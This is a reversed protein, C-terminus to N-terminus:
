CWGGMPLATLPRRNSLPTAVKGFRNQRKPEVAQNEATRVQGTAYASVIADGPRNPLGERGTIVFSGGDNARAICSGSLLQSTDVIVEPLNSVSNEIFSTDPSSIVGSALQGDANVDVRGDGDFPPQNDPPLTESFFSTLTINGGRASQSRAVIDSDDFAIVAAGGITINGGDGFSETTIDSDGFLDVLGRETGEAQNIAINGGSSQSALTVIDSNTLQVRDAANLIVPGAIGMGESQSSIQAGNDLTLTPSNVIIRGGAGTSGERTNAFLGSAPSENSFDARSLGEISLSQQLRTSFTPDSGTFGVRGAANLVINGANGSSTTNTVIQGGSLFNALETTIAIDGGSFSNFTQANIVAGNAVNLENAVINVNGSSGQANERTRAFIGSPLGIERNSGDLTTNMSNININGANGMGNTTASIFAGDLISLNDSTIKLDGGNGLATTTVATSLASPFGNGDTGIIQVESANITLSGANGNGSTNTRIAAGNNVTVQRAQIQINGGEGSGNQSVTTLIESPFGDEDLGSVLIEDSDIFLNGASGSGFIDAAILGGDKIVLSNAHIAQDGGNGSAGLEVRSIFGSSFNPSSGLIQIENVEIIQQGANGQGYTSSIVEAGDELILHNARIQIDGANGSAEQNTSSDILSVSFQNVPNIGELRVVESIDLSINGGSASGFNTTSITAGNVLYLQTASLNISGGNSDGFSRSFIGSPNQGETSVGTFTAIGNINLTINGAQGGGSANSSINAGNNLQLENTMIQIEGAQGTSNSNAGISTLDDLILRDAFVQITGAKGLDGIVTAYISSFQTIEIPPDGLIRRGFGSMQVTGSAEITINGANGSSTQENPADTGSNLTAGNQLILNTTSIDIDGATGIRAATSISNGDLLTTGEINLRVNGGDGSEFATALLNFDNFNTESDDDVLSFNAATIEIDGAEGNGSISSNLGFFGRQSGEETALINVSDEATLYINGRQGTYGATFFTSDIISLSNGQIRLNGGIPWSDVPSLNESDNTPATQSSAILISDVISIAEGQILFDGEPRAQEDSDFTVLIGDSIVVDDIALLTLADQATIAGGLDLNKAALILSAGSFLQGRSTIDGSTESLYSSFLASPSVTLLSSQEPETASYVGNGLPIAEATSAYFSGAIDLLANEGFVIGNPNIFFLDATTAVGDLSRTGLIGLIQSLNNGTVRSIINAIADSPSVFYAERGEDVNFEEFSHFLNQGRIAGGQILEIPFGGANPIVQSSEAGLTDDPVIVSQAWAPAGVCIGLLTALLSIRCSWFAGM